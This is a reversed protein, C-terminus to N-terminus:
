LANKEGQKNISSYEKDLFGSILSFLRPNDVLFSDHGYDILIECFNVYLNNKKMAQVMTRSQRTPYLWDSTFSVVLYKCRALSFAEALSGQGYKDALEFHDSAKTLYLLSNADFRDVFKQGQYALYEGVQFDNEMSYTFKNEKQHTRGFKKKLASDSLYTIHGIMRAVAQGHSPYHNEYYDGNNWNPDKMIAQRAVENFAIAMSSHKTTTAIPIAARVMDPFRVSWELAQMGGMSGGVVALLQEIGLHEILHKQAQVMDGITIAPFNLSYPRGTDPDISSPGTSGRCGGLVNSCIVFYKDTDIGKGPGIMIDWWGPKNDHKSYYGAAHSDGTLAHLVLVANTKDKNLEGYTEYALTLPGMKQGCEFLMENPPHAFHFFNKEVLGVSNHKNMPNNRRKRNGIHHLQM